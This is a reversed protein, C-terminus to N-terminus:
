PHQTALARITTLISIIRAEIGCELLPESLKLSLGGSPEASVVLLQILDELRQSLQDGRGSSRLARDTEPRRAVVPLPVAM